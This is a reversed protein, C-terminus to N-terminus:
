STQPPPPHHNKIEFQNLCDELAQVKVEATTTHYAYCVISETISSKDM